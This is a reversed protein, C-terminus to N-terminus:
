NMEQYIFDDFLENKRRVRKGKKCKLGAKVSMILAIGFVFAFFGFLVVKLLLNNNNNISPVPTKSVAQKVSNKYIGILNAKRDFTVQYKKFAPLGFNWVKMFNEDFTVLYLLKGDHEVFLDDANLEFTFGDVFFKLPKINELHLKGKDNVCSYYATHHHLHQECLNDKIAKDFFKEFIVKHFGTTGGIYGIEFNFTVYKKYDAEFKEDGYTIDNVEIVWSDPFENSVKLKLLNGQNFGKSDYEHPYSGIIFEGNDGNTFKYTTIPAKIAKKKILQDVLNIDKIKTDIYDENYRANGLIGSGFHIAKDDSAKTTLMFNIQKTDVGGVNFTDNSKKGKDYLGYPSHYLDHNRKDAGYTSSKKEDFKGDKSIIKAKSNLVVTSYEETKLQLKVSQLPTGLKIEVSAENSDLFNYPFEKSEEELTHREFPLTIFLSPDCSILTISSLILLIQSSRM